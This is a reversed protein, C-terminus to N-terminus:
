GARSLLSQLRRVLECMTNEQEATLPGYASLKRPQLEELQVELLTLVAQWNRNPKSGRLHTALTELSAIEGESAAVVGVRSLERLERAFVDLLAVVVRRHNAPLRSLREALAEWDAEREAHM